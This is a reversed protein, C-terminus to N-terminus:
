AHMGHLRSVHLIFYNRNSKDFGLEEHLSSFAYLHVSYTFCLVVFSFENSRDLHSM